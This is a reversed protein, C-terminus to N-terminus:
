PGAIFRAASYFRLIQFGVGRRVGCFSCFRPIM